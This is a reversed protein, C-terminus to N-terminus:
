PRSWPGRGSWGGCSKKSPSWCAVDVKHVSEKAELAADTIRIEARLEAHDAKAQLLQEGLARAQELGQVAFWGGGGGGGLRRRLGTISGSGSGRGRGM